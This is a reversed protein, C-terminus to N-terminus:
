LMTQWFCHDDKLIDLHDAIFIKLTLFLVAYAACGVNIFKMTQLACKTILFVSYTEQITDDVYVTNNTQDWTNWRTLVVNLTSSKGSMDVM